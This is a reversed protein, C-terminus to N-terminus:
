IHVTICVCFFTTPSGTAIILKGRCTMHPVEDINCVFPLSLFSMGDVDPRMLKSLVEPRYHCLCIPTDYILSRIGDCYKGPNTPKPLSYNNFYENCPMLKMLSSLCEKPQPKSPPPPVAPPPPAAPSFFPLFPFCNPLRMATPQPKAAILAFSVFVALLCKSPAM